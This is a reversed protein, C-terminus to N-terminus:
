EMDLNFMKFGALFKREGNQGKTLPNVSISLRKKSFKCVLASANALNRSLDVNKTHKKFFEIGARFCQGLKYNSQPKIYEKVFKMGVSFRQM